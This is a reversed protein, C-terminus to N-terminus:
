KSTQAPTTAQDLRERDFTFQTIKANLGTIVQQTIDMAPNVVMVADRQILISCKAQQYATGVVPNMEQGIRGIAKQQTAQLERERLQAKRNWANARVQLAANQQDFAGQDLTAKKGDLAKADNTIATQEASLESQAQTGIQNLRTQVYKGVTSNAIVGDVSLVCVGPLAPGHTIAPAAAAPAAAQAYAAEGTAFSMAAVSAAAILTQIKM